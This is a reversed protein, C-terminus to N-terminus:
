EKESMYEDIKEEIEKPTLNHYVTGNRAVSLNGTEESV